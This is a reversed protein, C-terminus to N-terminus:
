SPHRMGITLFGAYYIGWLRNCSFPCVRPFGTPVKVLQKCLFLYDFIFSMRMHLSNYVGDKLRIVERSDIWDM